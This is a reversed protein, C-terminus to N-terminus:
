NCRQHVEWKLAYARRFEDEEDRDSVGVLNCTTPAVENILLYGSRDIACRCYSWDDLAKTQTEKRSWTRFARATVHFVLTGDRDLTYTGSYTVSSTRHKQEKEFKGDRQFTLRSWYGLVVAADNPYRWTGVLNIRGASVHDM